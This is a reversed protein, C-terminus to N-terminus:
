RRAMRRRSYWGLLGVGCLLLGVTSPEPIVAIDTVLLNDILFNATASTTSDFGV